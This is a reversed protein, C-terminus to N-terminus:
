NIFELIGLIKLSSKLSFRRQTGSLFVVGGSLSSIRWERLGSRREEGAFIEPERGSYRSTISGVSWVAM